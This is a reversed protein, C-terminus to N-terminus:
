PRVQRVYEAVDEGGPQNPDDHKTDHVIMDRLLTYQAIPLAKTNIDAIMKETPCYDFLLSGLEVQKRLWYYRAAIHRTRTTCSSNVDSLM